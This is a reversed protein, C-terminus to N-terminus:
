GTPGPEIGTAGARGEKGEGRWGRGGGKDLARLGLKNAKGLRAGARAEGGWKEDEKAEVQATAETGRRSESKLV